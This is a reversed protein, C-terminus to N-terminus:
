GLWLTDDSEFHLCTIDGASEQQPPKIEVWGGDQQQFLGASSGAWISHDAMGQQIEWTDILYDPDSRSAASSMLVWGPALLALISLV